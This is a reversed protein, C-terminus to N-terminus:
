VHQWLPSNQIVTPMYQRAERFEGRKMRSADLFHSDVGNDRRLTSIYADYKERVRAPMSVQFMNANGLIASRLRSFQTTASMSPPAVVPPAPAPAAAPAPSLAPSFPEDPETDAHHREFEAFKREMYATMDAVIQVRQMDSKDRLLTTQTNVTRRMGARISAVTAAMQDFRDMISRLDKALAYVSLQGVQMGGLQQANYRIQEIDDGPIRM